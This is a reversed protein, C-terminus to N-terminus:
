SYYEIMMAQQRIGFERTLCNKHMSTYNECQVAMKAADFKRTRGQIMGNEDSFSRIVNALEKLSTCQNVLDYKRERTM